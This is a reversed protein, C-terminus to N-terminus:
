DAVKKFKITKQKVSKKKLCIFSDLLTEFLLNGEGKRLRFIQQRSLGTSKELDDYKGTKIECLFEQRAQEALSQLTQLQDLTM